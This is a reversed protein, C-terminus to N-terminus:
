HVLYAAIAARLEPIGRQYTYFTEGALLARHAAEVIFPPTPLDGEGVYLPILGTRGRAYSMVDVIGSTPAQAAEPRIEPSTTM